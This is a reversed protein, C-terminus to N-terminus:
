GRKDFGGQAIPGLAAVLREVAAPTRSGWWFLDQGDVVVVPAVVELEELHAASFEYPETPALVMDPRRRRVEALEVEPYDVAADAYVNAFGLAELLTSGFTDAGITM